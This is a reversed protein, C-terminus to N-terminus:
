RTGGAASGAELGIARLFRHTYLEDLPVPADLMGQALFSQQMSAWRTEDLWGIPHDVAMVLPVSKRMADAQLDPEAEPDYRRVWRGVDEPREVARHWGTLSAELFREVLEPERDLLSEAAFLTDAVFHAGYDDPFVLTLDAGARQARLTSGNIFAGWVDVEGSIFRNLESGPLAVTSYADPGLGVRDMMARFTPELDETVRITKGAFARPSAIGAERLSIFVIPSRQYLTAIARVPRGQARALLLTDAGAVGFRARGDLVPELVDVGPGGQVFEVELGAERYLGLQDAAYFGGFQAQHRWRLQLTVPSLPGDQTASSCGALLLAVGLALWRGRARM